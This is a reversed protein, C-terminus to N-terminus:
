EGQAILTEFGKNPDEGEPTTSVADVFRLFCSDEYWEHVTDFMEGESMEDKTILPDYEYERMLAVQADDMLLYIKHCGDWAIAKADNIREYVLDFNAM